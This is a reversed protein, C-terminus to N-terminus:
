NLKLDKKLWDAFDLIACSHPTESDLQLLFITDNIYSNATRFAAATGRKEYDFCSQLGRLFFRRAKIFAKEKKWESFRRFYVKNYELFINTFLPDYFSSWFLVDKVILKNRAQLEPKLRVKFSHLGAATYHQLSDYFIRRLGESDYIVKGSSLYMEKVTELSAAAEEYAAQICQFARGDRRMKNADPHTEKVLKRYLKKLQESSIDGVAIMQRIFINEM